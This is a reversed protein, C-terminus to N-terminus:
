WIPSMSHIEAIKNEFDARNGLIYQLKKWCKRLIKM